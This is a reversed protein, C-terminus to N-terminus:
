PIVPRALAAWFGVFNARGPGVYSKAQGPQFMGLGLGLRPLRPSQRLDSTWPPGRAYISSEYLKVM